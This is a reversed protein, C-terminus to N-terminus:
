QTARADRGHVTACADRRHVTACADRRHRVPWLGTSGNTARAGRGHGESSRRLRRPPSSACSSGWGGGASTAPQWCSTSAAAECTVCPAASIANLTPPPAPTTATPAVWHSRCVDDIIDLAKLSRATLKMAEAAEKAKEGTKWLIAACGEPSIVSYYAYELMGMRDGVGIGLAGGSGGEGIVMCLIPVRLRSMERLNM